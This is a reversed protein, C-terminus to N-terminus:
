WTGKIYTRNMWILRLTVNFINAAVNMSVIFLDTPSIANLIRLIRLDDVAFSNGLQESRWMTHKVRARIRIICSSCMANYYINIYVAIAIVFACHHFVCLRKLVYVGYISRSISGTYLLISYAIRVHILSCIEACNEIVSTHIHSIPARPQQAGTYQVPFMTETYHFCYCLVFNEVSTM